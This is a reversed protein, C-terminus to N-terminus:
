HWYVDSSDSAMSMKSTGLAERLGRRLRVELSRLLNCAVQIKWFVGYFLLRWHSFIDELLIWLDQAWAKSRMPQSYEYDVLDIEHTQVVSERFAWIWGMWVMFMSLVPHRTAHLHCTRLDALLYTPKWFRFKVCQILASPEEPGLLLTWTRSEHWIPRNGAEFESHFCACFCEWVCSRVVHACVPLCPCARETCICEEAKIDTWHTLPLLHTTM